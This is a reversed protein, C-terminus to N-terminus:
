HTYSVATCVQHGLGRSGTHILIVIQDRALGFAAAVTPELVEEVQQIEIFHNGAGITGLQSRGRERARSSVAATGAETICGRSETNDLDEELGYGKDRVLFGSGTALVGDLEVDSLRWRGGHGMGSPISRSIEHTLAQHGEGLEARTLPTALLRVGCNIDFGVGGPSVVGDPLLTAAVGGVPFGYGEHMDPMGYVCDVVGPLTTVNILQTIAEGGMEALLVPDAFIRAPVRMDARSSLSIEYCYRGCDSFEPLTASPASAEVPVTATM